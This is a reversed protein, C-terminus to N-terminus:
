EPAAPREDPPLTQSRRLRQLLLIAVGGLGIGLMAGTLNASRAIFNDPRIDNAHVRIGAIMPVLVNSGLLLGLFTGYGIELMDYLNDAKAMLVLGSIVAGLAAAVCNLEIGGGAHSALGFASGFAATVLFFKYLPIQVPRSMPDDYSM